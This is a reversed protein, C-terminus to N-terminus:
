VFIRWIARLIAIGIVLVWLVFQAISTALLLFFCGVAIKQGITDESGNM